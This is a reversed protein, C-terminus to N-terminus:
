RPHGTNMWVDRLVGIHVGHEVVFDNPFLLAFRLVIMMLAIVVMAGRLELLRDFHYLEFLLPDLRIPVFPDFHKFFDDIHLGVAENLLLVSSELRALPVGGFRILGRSSLSDVSLKAPLFLRGLFLPTVLLRSIFLTGTKATM